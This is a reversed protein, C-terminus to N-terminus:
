GVSSSEEVLQGFVVDLVGAANLCLKYHRSTQGTAGLAILEALWPSNVVEYSTDDRIEPPLIADDQWKFAVTDVFHIIVKRDQWDVFRFVLTGLEYTMSPYEADATSFGASLPVYSVPM